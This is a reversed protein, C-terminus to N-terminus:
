KTNLMTRISGEATIRIPIQADRYRQVTQAHPFGFRNNYSASLWAERPHTARLFVASSSGKSGHHPVKLYDCVLESPYKHVLYEETAAGIDGTFLIRKGAVDLRCVLSRENEGESHYESDPHLLKLRAKGIHFSCTDRVIYVHQPQFYARSSFFKWLDQGATEDSIIINAVQVAKLLSLLGGFHDAHLHTLLLYDIKRIGQRGMWPLMTKQMWSEKLMTEEKPSTDSEYLGKGGGTDIAIVKNGELRILAMDAIGCSMLHVDSVERHLLPQWALALSAGLLPLSLYLAVRYRGRILLFLWFIFIALALAYDRNLYYSNISLPLSSCLLIFQEWVYIIFRYALAFSSFFFSGKGLLMLCLSLPILLGTLPIGIINGIVANFSTMGFYYLTIPAIALSVLLSLVIGEFTNQMLRKLPREMLTDPSFLYIKPLGYSLVAICIFSMQLGVGFLEAPNILTILLLSLSLSQADSIPRQWWRALITVTIMIVSRTIPPAYGNLATFILILPLFCLEAWHRPMGIRLLSILLWYIFWVHLGSVVILHMIGARSLENRFENKASTDSLLLGKAWAADEGLKKDLNTLLISRLRAPYYRFPSPSLKHMSGLQTAFASYRNSFIQTVPDTSLSNIEAICRYREGPILPRVSRFLLSEKRPFRGIQELRIAYVKGVSSLEQRVQFTIDQRIRHKHEIATQLPNDEERQMGMRLSGGVMFLILILYTRGQKWVSALCLVVAALIILPLMPLILHRMLVIGVAWAIVPLLLPAPAARSVAM